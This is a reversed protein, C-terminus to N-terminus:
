FSIEKSMSEQAQILETVPYVKSDIIYLLKNCFSKFVDTLDINKEIIEGLLLKLSLLQNANEYYKVIDDIKMNKLISKEIGKKVNENSDFLGHNILTRLNQVGIEALGVGCNM